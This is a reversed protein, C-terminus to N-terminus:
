FPLEAQQRAVEGSQPEADDDDHDGELASLTLGMLRIPQPLPLVAELLDRAMSAFVTKDAV